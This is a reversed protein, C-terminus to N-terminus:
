GFITRTLESMEKPEFARRFEHMVLYSVGGIVVSILVRPLASKQDLEIVNETKTVAYNMTLGLVASGALYAFFKKMPM